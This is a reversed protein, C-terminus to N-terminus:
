GMLNERNDRIERGLSRGKVCGVRLGASGSLFCVKAFGELRGVFAGHMARLSDPAQTAILPFCAAFSDYSISKLTNSLASNYLTIFASARPGPTSATPASPPPSPSHTPDASPMSHQPHFEIPSRPTSQATRRHSRRRTHLSSIPTRQKRSSSASASFEAIALIHPM